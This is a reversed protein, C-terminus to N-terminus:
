EFNSALVAIIHPAEFGSMEIASMIDKAEVSAVEGDKCAIIWHM